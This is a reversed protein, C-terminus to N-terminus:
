GGTALAIRSLREMRALITKLERHQKTAAQRQRYASSSMLRAKYTWEFNPGRKPPDHRCACEPRGFKM